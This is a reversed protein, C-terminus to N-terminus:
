KYHLKWKSTRRYRWDSVTYKLMLYLYIFEM